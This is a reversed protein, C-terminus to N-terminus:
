RDFSGSHLCTRPDISRHPRGRQSLLLYVSQLRLLCLHLSLGEFDKEGLNFLLVYLIGRYDADVVGAGADIGCRVALLHYKM